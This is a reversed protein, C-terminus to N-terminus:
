SKPNKSWPSLIQPGFFGPYNIRPDQIRLDLVVSRLFLLHYSLINKIRNDQIKPYGGMGCFLVFIVQCIYFWFSNTYMWSFRFFNLQLKLWFSYGNCFNDSFYLNLVFSSVNLIDSFQFKKKFGFYDATSNYM